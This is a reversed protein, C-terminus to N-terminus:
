GGRVDPAAGTATIGPEDPKKGFLDHLQLDLLWTAGLGLVATWALILLHTGIAFADAAAAGVGLLVVIERMVVEYPGLDGPTLQLTRVIMPAAVVPVYQVINLDLGFAKGFSWFGGVHAISFLATIGLARVALAPSRLAEMGAAFRRVQLAATEALEEPFWRFPWRSALDERHGHLSLAVASAFGGLLLLAILTMAEGPIVPTDLLTLTITLLAVLTVWNLPMEVAFISAAVQSRPMGLRRSTVQIRVLDGGRVPMVINAMRSVLYILLIPHNSPRVKRGLLVMWRCGELLSALTFIALGLAAWFLNIEQLRRFAEPIDIRWILLPIFAVTLLLQFLFRNARVPALLFSLPGMARKLM